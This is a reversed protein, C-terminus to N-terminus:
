PSVVIAAMKKFPSLSMLIDTHYAQTIDLTLANIFELAINFQTLLLYGEEDIIFAAPVRTDPTTNWLWGTPALQSLPTPVTPFDLLNLKILNRFLDDNSNGTNFNRGFTFNLPNDFETSRIFENFTTLIPQSNARGRALETPPILTRNYGLYRTNPETIFDDIVTNITQIFLAQNESSALPDLVEIPTIFGYSYFDFMMQKVHQHFNDEFSNKLNAIIAGIKRTLSDWSDFTKRIEAEQYTSPIVWRKNISHWATFVSDTYRNLLASGPLSPRDLATKLNIFTEQLDNGVEMVRSLRGYPSTFTTNYIYDLGIRYILNTYIISYKVNYSNVDVAMPMTIAVNRASLDTEALVDRLTKGATSVGTVNEVQAKVADNLHQNVAVGDTAGKIENNKAM